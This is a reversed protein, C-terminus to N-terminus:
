PRLVGFQVAAPVVVYGLWLVVAIALVVPRRVADFRGGTGLTRMASWLGHYLHLVLASVAIVYSLAVIPNALGTVLNHYPDEAVFDGHAVGVTLHLLHYVIFTAIIIGGWRMTRSAYSFGLNPDQKYSTLRAAKSRKSLDYALFGHLVLLGLLVIRQVWLFGAHPIMPSGFDRIFEAYENFKAAGQFAKLNGAMHAFVFAFLLLGSAAM